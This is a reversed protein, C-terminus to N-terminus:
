TKGLLLSKKYVALIQRHFIRALQLTLLKRKLQSLKDDATESPKAFPDVNAPVDPDVGFPNSDDQGFSPTSVISLLLLLPLLSLIFLRQRM